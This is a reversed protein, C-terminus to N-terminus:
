PASKRWVTIQSVIYEYKRRHERLMFPFDEEHLLEFNHLEAALRAITQENSAGDLFKDKATFQTSWTNPSAIVLIGGKALFSDDAVFQQLCVQPDSLRCLLNSLLIADFPGSAERFAVKKLEAANGMLFKVKSRDIESDLRAQLATTYTGTEQRLYDRQGERKLTNAARVFARSYDVASVKSFYRALEFSARGVACGLDLASDKGTAYQRMLEVTHLILNGCSPHGVSASIQSDQQEQESGFHMLMYQDVLANTEYKSEPEDADAGLVLRFGAHQFFHPRFHFRAWSSAEDGTSIFSGGLIMQHEGDFCPTSFDTYYPHIAFGPLPHFADECWQWVNGISDHFGLSNAALGDVPSEAGYQLNLNTNESSDPNMVADLRLLKKSEAPWSCGKQWNTNNLARHESEMLLRYPNASGSLETLWTCYAKAEYYNVVAPWDWQMGIVSFTSRLKYRHSGSPGDQVWFTPWKVNRFTRWGWGDESWYRRNEYGGTAVFKHMEGNCVLFKSAQFSAVQRRDSGYENDWGFTPWDRPKGLMVECATVALMPNEQPYDVGAAPKSNSETHQDLFAPWHPPTNVFQAPIERILVSSTELHIREHEFAMVLGWAPSDMTVPKAFEAHTQIINRVLQYVEHRYAIVEELEPWVEKDGDHLDDWTMEDVGAEFLLEFRQNLPRTIFGGILLKNVYFCVPHAFYFLLPHRTRHYPRLYYADRCNLASFLMETLAWTNEFYALIALRGATLNLLPLSRLSDTSAAAIPKSSKSVPM